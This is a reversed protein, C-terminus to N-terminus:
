TVVVDPEADSLVDRVRTSLEPDLVVYAAGAKLVALLATILRPGRPLCVGVLSGDSLGRCQLVGALQDAARDLEAYTLEEDRFCVAIGNPSNDRRAEVLDALTPSTSEGLGDIISQSRAALKRWGLSLAYMHRATAKAESASTRIRVLSSQRSLRTRCSTLRAACRTM